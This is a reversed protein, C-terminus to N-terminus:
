PKPAAPSAASAAARTRASTSRTHLLQRSYLGGRAVITRMSGGSSASKSLAHPSYTERLSPPQSCHSRGEASASVGSGFPPRSGPIMAPAGGGGSRGAPPLRLNVGAGGGLMDGSSTASSGSACRCCISSLATGLTAGGGGPQSPRSTPPQGHCVRSSYEVSLAATARLAASAAICVAM